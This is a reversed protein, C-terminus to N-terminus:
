CYMLSREPRNPGFREKRRGFTQPVLCCVSGIRKVECFFIGKM